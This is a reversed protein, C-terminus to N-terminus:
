GVSRALAFAYRHHWPDWWRGIDRLGAERALQALEGARYGRRVSLPADHRTYANHTTTHSLLWAGLWV